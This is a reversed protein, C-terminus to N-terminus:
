APGLAQGSIEFIGTPRLSKDVLRNSEWWWRGDQLYDSKRKSGAPRLLCVDFTKCLAVRRNDTRGFHMQRSFLGNGGMQCDVPLWRGDPLMFQAWCHWGNYKYAWYGVVPRAPIGAARCLAVFLASSDGCEGCRNQLCEVAGGFSKMKEYEINDIIWDYFVRATQLPSGGSPRLRRALSRISEDTTPAKKESRTYLKYQSDRKYRGESKSGAGDSGSYLEPDFLQSRVTVEYSAQLSYTRHPQGVGRSGFSRNAVRVLKHADFSIRADPEVELSAVSQEPCIKEDMLPLPLWIELMSFPLTGMDVLVRHRVRYKEAVGLKVSSSAPGSAANSPSTLLSGGCAAALISGGSHILFKRRTLCGM